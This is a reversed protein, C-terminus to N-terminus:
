RLPLRPRANFSSLAAFVTDMKPGELQRIDKEARAAAELLVKLYRDKLLHIPYVRSLATIDIAAVMEGNQNRIPVAIASLGPITEDEVVSYGERAVRLLIQAIQAKDTITRTTLAALETQKLYRKLSDQSLASLFLRGMCTSYAPLRSGVSRTSEVMAGLSRGTIVIEHSQFIASFSTLGCEATVRALERNVLAQFPSGSFYAYGLELSKPSIAFANGEAKLYGLKALTLLM